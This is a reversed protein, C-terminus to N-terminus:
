DCKEDTPIATPSLKNPPRNTTRPKRPQTPGDPITESCELINSTKTKMPDIRIEEARTTTTEATITVPTSPRQRDTTDAPAAAADNGDDDDDDEDDNMINLDLAPLLALMERLQDLNDMVMGYEVFLTRLGFYNDQIEEQLSSLKRIKIEETLDKITAEFLQKVLERVPHKVIPSKYLKSLTVNLNMLLKPESTMTNNKTTSECYSCDTNVKQKFLHFLYWFSDYQNRSIGSM